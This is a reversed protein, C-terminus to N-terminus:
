KGSASYYRRAGTRQDRYATQNRPDRCATDGKPRQPDRCATDPKPDRPDRCATDPPPEHRATEV